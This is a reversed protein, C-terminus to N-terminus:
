HRQEEEVEHKWVNYKRGGNTYLTLHPKDVIKSKEKMEQELWDCFVSVQIMVGKWGEFFTRHTNWIM